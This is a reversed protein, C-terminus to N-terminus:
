ARASRVPAPPSDGSRPARRWGTAQCQNRFGRAWVETFIKFHTSSNTNTFYLLAFDTRAYAMKKVQSSLEFIISKSPTM